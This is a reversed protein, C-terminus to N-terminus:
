RQVLTMLVVTLTGIISLQSGALCQWQRIWLHRVTGTPWQRRNHVLCHGLAILNAGILLCLPRVGVAMPVWISMAAYSVGFSILWIYILCRRRLIAGAALSRTRQFRSLYWGHGGLGVMTIVMGTIVVMQMRNMGWDYEDAFDALGCGM